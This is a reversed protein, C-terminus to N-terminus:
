CRKRFTGEKMVVGRPARASRTCADCRRSSGPGGGRLVRADFQEAIGGATLGLAGAQLEIGALGVAIGEAGAGLDMGAGAVFQVGAKGAISVTAGTHLVLGTQAVSLAAWVEPFAIADNM